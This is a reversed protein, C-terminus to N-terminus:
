AAQVAIAEEGGVEICRGVGLFAHVPNGVVAHGAHQEAVKWREGRRQEVHFVGESRPIERHLRSSVVSVLL